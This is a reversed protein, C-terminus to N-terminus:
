GMKCILVCYFTAAGTPSWSRATVWWLFREFPGNTRPLDVLPTENESMLVRLSSIIQPLIIRPSENQWKPPFMATVIIKRGRM